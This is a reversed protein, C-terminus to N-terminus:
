RRADLLAEADGPTRGGVHVDTRGALGWRWSVVRDRDRLDIEGGRDGHSAERM